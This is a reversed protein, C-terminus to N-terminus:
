YDCYKYVKKFINLFFIASLVYTHVYMSFIVYTFFLRIWLDVFNETFWMLLIM